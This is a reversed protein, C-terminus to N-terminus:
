MAASFASISGPSVTAMQPQPGTPCNAMWLAHISPGVYGLTHLATASLVFALLSGLTVWRIIRSILSLRKEKASVPTVPQASMM